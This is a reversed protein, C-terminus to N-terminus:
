DASAARATYARVAGPRIERTVTWGHGISWDGEHSSHGGEQRSLHDLEAELYDGDTDAEPIWTGESLLQALLSLGSPRGKWHVALFAKRASADTLLVKRLGLFSERERHNEPPPAELRTKGKELGKLIKLWDRDTLGTRDWPATPIAEAGGGHSAPSARLPGTERQILDYTSGEEVNKAPVVQITVANMGLHFRPDLVMLSRSSEPRFLESLTNNVETSGNRKAVDSLHPLPVPAAGNRPSAALDDLYAQAVQQTLRPRKSGLAFQVASKVQKSGRFMGNFGARLVATTGSANVCAEILDTLRTSLKRRLRGGPSRSEYFIGGWRLPAFEAWDPDAASKLYWALTKDALIAGVLLPDETEAHVRPLLAEAVRAAAKLFRKEASAERLLTHFDTSNIAEIDFDEEPNMRLFARLESRGTVTARQVVANGTAKAVDAAPKKAEEDPPLLALFLASASSSVGGM